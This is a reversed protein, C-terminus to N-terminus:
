YVGVKNYYNQSIVIEVIIQEFNIVVFNHGELKPPLPTVRFGLRVIIRSSSM